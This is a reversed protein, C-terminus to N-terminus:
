LTDVIEPLQRVFKRGPHADMDCDWGHHDGWCHGCVSCLEHLEPPPPAVWKAVPKLPYLRDCEAKAEYLTVGHLHRYDKIWRVRDGRVEAKPPIPLAPPATDVGLVEAVGILFQDHSVNLYLTRLQKTVVHQPIM